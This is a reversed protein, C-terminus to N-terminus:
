RVSVIQVASPISLALVEVHSTHPLMDFPQLSTTRFGAGGLRDLDRALTGPNCSLYAVLRPRLSAVADLVAATCGSRPPNCVVMDASGVAALKAAVDGTVFRVHAAGLTRANHAADRTAMPNEEIGVIESALGALALAIGGVGTYADVIRTVPGLTRAAAVIAEYALAAVHRNAQFFARPSLRVPVDGVVDDITEQGALGIDDDGWVVNGASDNVNQVVGVIQPCRDRLALAVQRAAPWDRRGTVLTVLVQGTHNGRLVVYRLMGMRTREDFPPVRHEELVTLLASAAVDIPPEVVQCGALDVVDHSRPLYAGLVLTGDPGPGRTYVYKAQNRYHLPQPSAVCPAVSIGALRPSATMAQAVCARKWETQAPYALHQLVCGGCGGHAPCAPAVRHPSLTQALTTVGWAEIRGGKRHPSVHKLRATAREGPLLQAVHVLASENQALGAGDTDIAHCVLDLEDGARM